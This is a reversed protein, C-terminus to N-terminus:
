YNPVKKGDASFSVIKNIRSLRTEDRKALSLWRLINRRYSPASADWWEKAGAESLAKVLDDPEILADIEQGVNYSSARKAENIRALGAAQMRGEKNLRDARDRYTKTWAQAKRPSILQMTRDDDLKMRRGDIWGYALLADLVEDRSVYKERHLAKWTVLWVTPSNSHNSELWDWLGNARTIEVKEFDNPTM